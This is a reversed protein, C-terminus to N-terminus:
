LLISLRNWFMELDFHTFINMGFYVYKMHKAKGIDTMKGGLRETTQLGITSWYAYFNDNDSIIFLGAASSGNSVLRNPGSYSEPVIFSWWNKLKLMSETALFYWVDSLSFPWLDIIYGDGEAVVPYLSWLGM